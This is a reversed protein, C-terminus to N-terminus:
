SKGNINSFDENLIIPQMVNHWKAELIKQAEYLEKIFKMSSCLTIIM